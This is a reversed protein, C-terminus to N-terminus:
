EAASVAGAAGGGEERQQARRPRGELRGDRTGNAVQSVVAERGLRQELAQRREDGQGGLRLWLDEEVDEPRHAVDITVVAGGAPQAVGERRLHHGGEAHTSEGTQRGGGVLRAGECGGEDEVEDLTRKMRM